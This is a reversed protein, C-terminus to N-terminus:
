KAKEPSMEDETRLLDIKTDGALCYVRFHLKAQGDTVGSFDVIYRLQDLMTNLTLLDNSMRTITAEKVKKEPDRQPNSRKVTALEDTMQTLEQGKQQQMVLLDKRRYPRAEGGGELKVSTQVKIEVANATSSTSLKLILPPASKDSPGTAVQVQDGASVPGKPEQRYVKFGEARTVEVFVQKALPLDGINWKVSAGAKDIDVALPAGREAVRLAVMQRKAGLALACNGLQKAVAAQKIGDETWQFM